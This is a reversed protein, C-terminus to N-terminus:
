TNSIIQLRSGMQSDFIFKQLTTSNYNSHRHNNNRKTSNSRLVVSDLKFLLYFLKEFLGSLLPQLYPLSLFINFSIFRCFLSLALYVPLPLSICVVYLRVSFSSFNTTHSSVETQMEHLIKNYTLCHTCTRIRMEMIQKSPVITVKSRKM